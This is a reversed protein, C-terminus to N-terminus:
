HPEQTRQGANDQPPSPPLAATSIADNNVMGLWSSRFGTLTYRRKGFAKGSISFDNIGASDGGTLVGFNM